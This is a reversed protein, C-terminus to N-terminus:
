TRTLRIHPTGSGKADYILLVSSSYFHFSTQSEFWSLIARLKPLWADIAEFRINEGNDLFEVLAQLPPLSHHTIGHTQITPPPTRRLQFPPCGPPPQHSTTPRVPRMTSDRLKAGWPKDRVVLTEDKRWYQACGV